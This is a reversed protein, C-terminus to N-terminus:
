SEQTTGFICGQEVGEKQGERAEWEAAEVCVGEVVITM